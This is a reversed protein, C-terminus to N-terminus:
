IGVECVDFICSCSLNNVCSVFVVDYNQDFFPFTVTLNIPDSFGDLTRPLSLDGAVTGFPYFRSLPICNILRICSLVFVLLWVVRM